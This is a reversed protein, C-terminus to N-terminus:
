PTSGARFQLCGSPETINQQTTECFLWDTPTNSVRHSVPPLGDGGDGLGGLAGGSTRGRASPCTRCGGRGLLSAALRRALLPPHVPLVHDFGPRRWVHSSAVRPPRWPPQSFFSACCGHLWRGFTIDRTSEHKARQIAKITQYTVDEESRSLFSPSLVPDSWDVDTLSRVELFSIKKEHNHSM